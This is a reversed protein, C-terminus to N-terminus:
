QDDSGCLKAAVEYARLRYRLMDWELRATELELKAQALQQEQSILKIHLDRLELRLVAERQEANKGDIGEAFRLARANELVHRCSELGASAQHFAHLAGVLRAHADEFDLAVQQVSQVQVSAPSLVSM